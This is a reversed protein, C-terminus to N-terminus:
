KIVNNKKHDSCKIHLKILGKIKERAGARHCPQGHWDPGWGLSQPPSAWLRDGASYSLQHSKVCEGFHWREMGLCLWHGLACHHWESLSSPQGFPTAPRPGHCLLDCQRYESPHWQHVTSSMCWACRVHSTTHAAREGYQTLGPICVLLRNGLRVGKFWGSCVSATCNNKNVKIWAPSTGVGCTWNRTYVCRFYVSYCKCGCLWVLLRISHKNLHKM